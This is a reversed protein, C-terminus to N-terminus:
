SDEPLADREIACSMCRPGGRGRGLESDAITIVEIGENDTTGKAASPSTATGGNRCSARPRTSRRIDALLDERTEIM